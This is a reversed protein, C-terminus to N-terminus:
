MMIEEIIQVCILLSNGFENEFNLSKKKITDPLLSEWKSVNPLPNERDNRNLGREEDEWDTEEPWSLYFCTEGTESGYGNKRM